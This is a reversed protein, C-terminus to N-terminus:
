FGIEKQDINIIYAIENMQNLTLTYRQEYNTCETVPESKHLKVEFDYCRAFITRFESKALQLHKCDSCLGFSRTKIYTRCGEYSDFGLMSARAVVEDCIKDKEEKNFDMLKSPASSKIHKPM